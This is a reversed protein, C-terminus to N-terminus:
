PIASSGTAAAAIGALSANAIACVSTSPRLQNRTASRPQAAAQGQRLASASGRALPCDGATGRERSHRGSAVEGDGGESGPGVLLRDITAGSSPQMRRAISALRGGIEAASDPRRSLMKALMSMVLDELQGPVDAILHSPPVPERKM